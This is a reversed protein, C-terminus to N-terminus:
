CRSFVTFSFYFSFSFSSGNQHALGLPQQGSATFGSSPGTMQGLVGLSWTGLCGSRYFLSGMFFFLRILFSVKLLTCVRAGDVVKQM